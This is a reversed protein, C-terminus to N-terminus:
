AESPGRLKTEAGDTLHVVLRTRPIRFLPRLPLSELVDRVGPEQRWYDDWVIAGRESLMTLANRTDSEVYERTHAGDIYVLDCRGHFPTLDFTASDGWLQEVKAKPHVSEFLREPPRRRNAEDLESLQLAAGRDYPLDLTHVTGDEAINEALAWTTVGKFTGIEFVTRADISRALSALFIIGETTQSGEGGLNRAPPLTVPAAGIADLLREPMEPIPSYREFQHDRFVDIGIRARRLVARPTLVRGYSRLV